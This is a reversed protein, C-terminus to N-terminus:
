NDIYRILTNIDYVLEEKADEWYKEDDNFVDRENELLNAFPNMSLRLDTDIFHEIEADIELKEVEIRIDLCIDVIKLIDNKSFSLKNIEDLKENLIKIIM